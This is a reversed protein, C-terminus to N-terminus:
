LANGIEKLGTVANGPNDRSVGAGNELVQEMKMGRSGKVLVTDGERCIGLLVRRAEAPSSVVVVRGAGPGKGRSASFEEAAKEMMGGVAILVDVPLESMWRGLRRHAEEAHDGLELMDGLVAIARDKRLRVLERVAEEMSAPNANYVDSIVAAGFLDKFELRMPVGQFSELGKKIEGPGIGLVTCASAAALANSVNFRGPLQLTVNVCQRSTCLAFLSGRRALEIDRAYLDAAGSMGFTVMDPGKGRGARESVGEMLFRDDGNLVITKVADFLELKTSRVRELSGFGELHAPGINTIVGCDPLAIDCLERIDGRRSAGMEMVAFEDGEELRTLSLPLGIQNNLNGSNKLVKHRIGLISAILEKTTTKGNSGTVGIVTARSKLRVHRAIDHLAKLTDKVCLVTKGRVPSVPPVSVMAGSGKKMADMLFDHGDFRDGKLALFLEGERISRSDISIGTFSTGESPGEIVRGDTAGIIEEVTLIAM